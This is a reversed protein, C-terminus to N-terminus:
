CLTYYLLFFTQGLKKEKREQVETTLERHNKLMVNEFNNEKM